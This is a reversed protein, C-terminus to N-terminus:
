AALLLADAPIRLTVREAVARPPEGARHPASCRVLTGSPLRVTYSVHAGLFQVSVIEGRLGSVAGDAGDVTWAEPRVCLVRQPGAERRKVRAADLTVEEGEVRFTVENDRSAVIQAALINAGGIFDAAFRNDPSDYIEAPSGVQVLNGQHMLAIRDSISLAEEQDHTVFITTIRYDRQIQQIMGRFEVRLKADLASLPEDLLLLRPEIVLARAMAVRQRQGGSLTAPSRGSMPALGFKELIADVRKRTEGEAVRRARLGYAVNEFISRDPFLAYDQFVMGINRRYPPVDTVDEADFRVRGARPRVFGAAIRLLTTKGCGSPGLLTFLEGSRIEVNLNELVPQSGYAHSIAEFALTTM